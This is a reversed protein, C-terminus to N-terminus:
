HTFTIGLLLSGRGERVAQLLRTGGQGTSSQGEMRGNEQYIEQTQGVCISLFLGVGDCM